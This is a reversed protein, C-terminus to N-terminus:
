AVNSNTSAPRRRSARRNRCHCVGVFNRPYLTCVRHILDNSLRSWATSTRLDGIHHGMGAARPSFITLDTGRERQLKLQAGELSERIQDDTINLDGPALHEHRGAAETQKKRFDHVQRPETTYHGHCDIIM